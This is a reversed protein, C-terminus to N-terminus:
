AAKKAAREKARKEKQADLFAQLSADKWKATFGNFSLPRATKIKCYGQEHWRTICAAVAGTSPHEGASNKVNKVIEGVPVTGDPDTKRLFKDVEVALWGRSGFSRRGKKEEDSAAAAKEAKTAKTTKTAAPAKPEARKTAM